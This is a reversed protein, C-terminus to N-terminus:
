PVSPRHRGFWDAIQWRSHLGLKHLIHQVHVGATGTSITLREAIQRDTHWGEGILRAVDWERATLSAVIADTAIPAASEPAPGGSVTVASLAFAVAEDVSLAYGAGWAADLEAGALNSRASTLLSAYTSREVYRRLDPSSEGLKHAAGLLRAVDALRAQALLVGALGLLDFIVFYHDVLEHHVPLAEAFLQAAGAPDGQELETYGLMALTVAISRLDGLERYLGLSEELPLRSRMGEGRIRWTIGLNLLALAMVPLDGLEHSLALGQELLLTSEELHRQLRRTMGLETLAAAVGRRDGLEDFLDRAQEELAVADGYRGHAYALRGGACLARARLSPAMPRTPSREIAAEMWRRGESLYSRAEWFPALATVLRLSVEWEDREEARLLALRFNSQDRELRELWVMQSPGRLGAAAQEALNLYATTHRARVTEAEGSEVLREEAYQRVPELLHFQRAGSEDGTLVISKDVLQTVVDLVAPMDVPDGACVVEATELDWGGAFVALRRLVTREPETLLDYSWDLAARMTQQRTPATRPGATLVRLAHDLRDCIQEVSLVRVRAAALEVALPIGELRSSIRGVADANQASLQFTPVVARAREVFLQVSACAALDDASRPEALNPFALPLVRWVREGRIQLPERSTALIRLSPCANLLREAVTACADVLHECNDLVLLLDRGRVTVTLSELPSLKSSEAVGFSSLITQPVLQPDSVPALEVLYVGERFSARLDAAVRLALRTKGGGGVGTLTVLREAGHLVLERLQEADRDRGILSSLEAPLEGM